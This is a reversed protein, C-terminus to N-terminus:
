LVENSVFPQKRKKLLLWINEPQLVLNGWKNNYNYVKVSKSKAHLSTLDHTESFRELADSEKKPTYTWDFMPKVGDDLARQILRNESLITM